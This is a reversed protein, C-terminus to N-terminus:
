VDSDCLLTISGEGQWADIEIMDGLPIKHMVTKLDHFGDGRKTGLIELTLNIKCYATRKM